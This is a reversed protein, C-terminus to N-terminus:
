MRLVKRGDARSFEPVYGAKLRLKVLAVRLDDPEAHIRDAVVLGPLLVNLFRLPMGDGIRQDAIGVEVNGLEVVHEMRVRRAPLARRRVVGRYARHEDD